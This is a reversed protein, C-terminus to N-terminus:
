CCGISTGSRELEVSVPGIYRVQPSRTGDSAWSGLPQRPETTLNIRPRHYASHVYICADFHADSGYNPSIEPIRVRFQELDARLSRLRLTGGTCEDILSAIVRFGEPHGDEKEAIKGCSIFLYAHILEHLFTSFLLNTNFQGSLLLPASLVIQADVVNGPLYRPTTTGLLEVTYRPDRAYHPHTSWKWDVKASLKDNTTLTNSFFASDAARLIRWLLHKLDTSELVSENLLADLGKLHRGQRGQQGVWDKVEM